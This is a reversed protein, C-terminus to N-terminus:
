PVPPAPTAARATAPGPVGTWLEAQVAVDESERKWSVGWTLAGILLAHAILALLVSRISGAPQEPAFQLSDPHAQM